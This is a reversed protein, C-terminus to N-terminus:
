NCCGDCGHIGMEHGIGHPCIDEWVKKDDRYHRTWGKQIIKSARKKEKPSLKPAILSFVRKNKDKGSYIKYAEVLEEYAMEGVEWDKKDLNEERWARCADKLYQM